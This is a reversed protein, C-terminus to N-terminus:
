SHTSQGKRNGMRGVCGGREQEPPSMSGAACMQTGMRLNQMELASGCSSARSTGQGRMSCCADLVTEEVRVAGKGFLTRSLEWPEAEVDNGLFDERVRELTRSLECVCM